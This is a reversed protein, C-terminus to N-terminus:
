KVSIIAGNILDKQSRNTLYSCLWALCSGTIQKELSSLLIEYNVMNSAASLDLYVGLIADGDDLTSILDNKIHVMATKTSHFKKYASQFIEHLHNEDLYVTVQDDVVMETLKSVYALNSISRFCNLM